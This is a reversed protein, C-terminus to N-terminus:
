GEGVIVEYVEIGSLDFRSGAMGRRALREEASSAYRNIRVVWVHTGPVLADVAATNLLVNPYRGDAYYAVYQESWDPTFLYSADPGAERELVQAAGRLDQVAVFDGFTGYPFTIAGAFVLGAAGVSLAVARTRPVAGIAAILAAYGMVAAIISPALAWMLYRSVFSPKVLSVVALSPSAVVGIAVLLAARSAAQGVVRRTVLAFVLAVNGLLLAWWWWAGGVADAAGTRLRGATIDPIWDISRNTLLAHMFPLFLLLSGASWVLVRVRTERDRWLARAWLWELGVLPATFPSMALLVANAVLAVGVRAWAPRESLRFFALLSGTALAVTWSYARAEAWHVQFAHNALLVVCSAIAVARGALRHALHYVAVVAVAAGAVSFMRLWWDSHSAHAWLWLAVYYPGMGTERWLMSALGRVSTRAYQGSIAEDVWFSHRTARLAGVVLTFAALAAMAMRDISGLRPPAASEPLTPASVTNRGAM